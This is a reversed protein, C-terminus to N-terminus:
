LEVPIYIRVQTGLAMGHEDVKDEIELVMKHARNRNLIELRQENARTSFSNHKEQKQKKMQASKARGIGNDDIIVKLYQQEMVMLIQLSKMGKRHMLGHKIANEVYPQILMSPVQIMEIEVSSDVKFVFDFDDDFRMKELELYLTLAQIEENLHIADKESMELIMRTLKSFKALYASANRKDNTFIYAQITNLANYFFHPNMQSKISTLISKGLSQELAVKENLLKIQASLQSIRWKYYSYVVIVIFGICLAIFWWKYWFPADITFSIKDSLLQNGLKFNITYHGHALSKFELSRSEAAIVKWDENNIRYYLPTLQVAGFDLISFRISVDNQKHYFTQNQYQKQPVNNVLFSNIHFLPQSPHKDAYQLAAMVIGEKTILMVQSDVLYLDNIVSPSININLPHIKFDRLSLHYILKNTMLLLESGFQRVYKISNPPLGMDANLAQFHGDNSIQYFNGKTNLAFVKSNDVVIRSAYFPEGGDKLTDVQKPNIKFFGTNGSCYITQTAADFAITRGRFNNILIAYNNFHTKTAHKYVSDWLSFDSAKYNPSKILACFGNAVFAYYKKDIRIIEKLAAEFDKPKDLKGQPFFSMCKASYVVDGSLTDAYLYYLESGSKKCNPVLSNVVFNKFKLFAGERNAILFDNKLRVIKSPNFNGTPFIQQKINPMLFLGDSTTTFWYNGQRDKIVSSISKEAFFHTYPVDSTLRQDPYRYTGSPSHVWFYGDLYNVGQILKPEPISITKLYNLRRDFVYLAKSKNTKSVVFVFSDSASLRKMQEKKGAFYGSRTITLDNHICFISDQLTIYFDEGFSYSNEFFNSQWPISIRKKFKLSSIDYIDVSNSQMLMLYKSTIAFPAYNFVSKQKLDYLSDQYVYYLRGDFNEYWIRGFKDEKICSGATSVQADCNYTTFEVGDYRSIGEQTALWIFGSKDQYVDYVANSPLGKTQNIHM